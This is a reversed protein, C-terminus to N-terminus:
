PIIPDSYFIFVVILAIFACLAKFNNIKKTGKQNKKMHCKFHKLSEFWNFIQCKNSQIWSHVQDSCFRDYYHVCCPGWLSHYVSSCRSLVASGPTGPPHQTISSPGRWSRGQCRQCSIQWMRLSTLSKFPLHCTSLKFHYDLWFDKWYTRHAGVLRIM